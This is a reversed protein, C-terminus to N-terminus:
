EARVRVPLPLSLSVASMTHLPQTHPRSAAGRPTGIAAGLTGVPISDHLVKRTMGDSACAARRPTRCRSASM